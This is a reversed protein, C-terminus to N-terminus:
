RVNPFSLPGVHSVTSLLPPREPVGALVSMPVLRKTTLTVLEKLRELLAVINTETTAGCIVELIVRRIEITPSWILRFQDPPLGGKWTWDAVSRPVRLQAFM